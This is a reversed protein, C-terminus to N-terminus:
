IADLGQPLGRRDPLLRKPWPNERISVSLAPFHFSMVAIEM